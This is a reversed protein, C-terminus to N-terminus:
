KQAKGAHRLRDDVQQRLADVWPILAELNRDHIKKQLRALQDRLDCLDPVVDTACRAQITEFPEGGGKLLQFSRHALERVKRSLKPASSWTSDLITDDPSNETQSNTM